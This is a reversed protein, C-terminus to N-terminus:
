RPTSTTFPVSIQQAVVGQPLSSRVIWASETAVVPMLADPLQRFSMYM